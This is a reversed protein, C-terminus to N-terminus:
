AADDPRADEGAPDATLDRKVEPRRLLADIKAGAGFSEDLRFRLDPVYKLAVHKTLGHRIAPANRALAKITGPGDEGLLPMVFATAIRMDPSLRVETVSITRGDLEPDGLDGRAVVDALARRVGEGVRLLRVSRGQDDPKTKM